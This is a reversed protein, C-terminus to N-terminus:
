SPAGVRELVAQLEPPLPQEFRVREGTVPHDFGLTAAHLFPRPLPIQDRSGGYTGDGVVPHGIASLHV